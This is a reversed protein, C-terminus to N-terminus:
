HASRPQTAFGRARMLADATADRTRFARYGEFPDVTDGVSFVHDRLRAAVQPDLNNGTETFAEFADADLVDAWLYRYFGAAYHLAHGFEHFLTQADRV